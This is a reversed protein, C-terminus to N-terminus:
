ILVSKADFNVDISPVWIWLWTPIAKIAQVINFPLSSSLFGLSRGAPSAIDAVRMNDEGLNLPRQDFKEFFWM